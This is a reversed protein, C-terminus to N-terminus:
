RSSCVTRSCASGAACRTSRVTGTRSTSAASTAAAEVKLTLRGSRRGDDHLRYTGNFYEPLFKEGVVFKGTKKPQAEPLPKTLLYLKAKGLAEVHFKNGDVVLRLDGGAEEPVVQGVDLNLRFAAFLYLNRGSALVAEDTGEKYTVFRDVLLIPV